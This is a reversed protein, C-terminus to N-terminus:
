QLDISSSELLPKNRSVEKPHSQRCPSVAYHVHMDHLRLLFDISFCRKALSAFSICLRLGIIHMNEQSLWGAQCHCDHDTDVYVYCPHLGKGERRASQVRTRIHRCVLLDFFDVPLRCSPQGRRALAVELNVIYIGLSLAWQDKRMNRPNRCCRKLTPGKSEASRPLEGFEPPTSTRRRGQLLCAPLKPVFGSRDPAESFVLCPWHEPDLAMAVHIGDTSLPLVATRSAALPEVACVAQLLSTLCGSTRCASCGAFAAATTGVSM